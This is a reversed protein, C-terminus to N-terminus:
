HPRGHRSLAVSNSETLYAATDADEVIQLGLSNTHFNIPRAFNETLVALHVALHRIRAM